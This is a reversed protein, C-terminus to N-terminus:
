LNDTSTHTTSTGSTTLSSDTTGSRSQNLDAKSSSTQSIKSTGRKMPVFAIAEFLASFSMGYFMLFYVVLLNSPNYSMDVSAASGSGIVQLLQAVGSMTIWKVAKKYSKNREINSPAMKVSHHLLMIFRTGAVLFAIASALLCIIGFGSAVTVVLEIRTYFNAEFTALVLSLAFFILGALALFVELHKKFWTKREGFAGWRLFLSVGMLTPLLNLSLTVYMLYRHNRYMVRSTSDFPGIACYVGRVLGDVVLVASALAMTLVTTHSASMHFTSAEFYLRRFHSQGAYLAILAASINVISM